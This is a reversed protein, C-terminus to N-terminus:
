FLFNLGARVVQFDTRDFNATYTSLSTAAGSKSTATSIVSASDLSVYLYEVKVSWNPAFRWEGGGGATWGAKVSSHSGTFCTTNAICRFSAPFAPGIFVVGPAGNFHYSDSADVKGYAFGGSAFLLLDQTALWGLRGRVTGWWDIKEQSSVTQTFGPPSLNSTGTGSGKIGSGSFDAELGVVWSPAFQWNYGLEVGGTIGSMNFSHTPVGQQGVFGNAGNILAVSSPDDGAYTVTRDGWGGGLQGGIYFGTWGAVPAQPMRQSKAPLDLRSKVPLDAAQVSAAALLSAFALTVRALRKKM